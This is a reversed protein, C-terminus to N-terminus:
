NTTPGFRYETPSLIFLEYNEDQSGNPNVTQIYVALGDEDSESTFDLVDVKLDALEKIEITNELTASGDQQYAVWQVFMRAAVANGGSRAIVVRYVGSKDDRYWSGAVRVEEIAGPLAAVGDLIADARAPLAVVLGAAFAIAPIATRFM